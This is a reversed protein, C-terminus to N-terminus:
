VGVVLYLPEVRSCVGYLRVLNKHNCRRMLVGERIFAECSMTNPLMIKVAVQVTERWVAHKVQGFHGGGLERGMNLESRGIEWWHEPADVDPAIRPAPFTLLCSLGPKGTTFM